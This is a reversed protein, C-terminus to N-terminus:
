PYRAMGSRTVMFGLVIIGAAIFSSYLYLSGLQFSGSELIKGIGYSALGYGAMYSAMLGGSVTEAISSFRSQAFSFSLPFFASCALGAFGFLVIGAIDSGAKTVAWMAAAIMIPLIRYIWRAPVWAALFSVLLRGVTVMAWFAALAYSAQASPITRENSLFIIAWNAFITECYGYLVVIVIFIWIGKPILPGTEASDSKRDYGLKEGKLPLSFSGALIIVLVILASGPLLLWGYQKVLVAVLLPALATGTGLLTHLGTLASASKDPFFREAYVNLMPLTSGFGAGVATTGLLVCTYAVNYNDTFWGGAGILAMACINFLLGSQYIKKLGWRRSYKPGLLAGLVGMLVQPIFLAGYASDSFGFANPDTLISSAAPVTVLVLGQMLGTMYILLIEFKRKMNIEIVQNDL